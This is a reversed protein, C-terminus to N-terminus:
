VSFGIATFFRYLKLRSFRYSALPPNSSTAVGATPRSSVSGNTRQHLSFLSSCSRAALRRMPESSQVSDGLDGQGTMETHTIM